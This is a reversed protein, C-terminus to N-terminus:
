SGRSHETPRVPLIIRFRTGEGPTSEVEIEGHHDRVIGHTISLGLGTGEGVPKTSFFPDFIKSMADKPIGCGDDAIEM